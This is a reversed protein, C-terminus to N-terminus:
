PNSISISYTSLHFPYLFLCNKYLCHTSSANSYHM